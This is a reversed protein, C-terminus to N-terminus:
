INKLKIILNNFDFPKEMFILRDGIWKLNKLENSFRSLYGSTIIIKTTSLNKDLYNLIPIANDGDVLQLDLVIADLHTYKIISIASSSTTAIIFNINSVLVLRKMLEVHAKCDEVYLVNM